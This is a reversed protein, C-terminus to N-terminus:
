EIEFENELFDKCKYAPHGIVIHPNNRMITNKDSAALGFGSAQIKIKLKNLQLRDINKQHFGFGLMCVKDAKSLLERASLFEENKETDEHIIKISKSITQLKTLDTLQDGFPIDTTQGNYPLEGLKGHLHIIPISRLKTYCEIESKGYLASMTKVFYYELTRDYNYTIFAVKNQAILDFETIMKNWVYKYWDTNEFLNKESELKLLNYAIAIKGIETYNSRFELFADVSNIESRILNKQFAEIFQRKQDNNLLYQFLQNRSLSDDDINRLQHRPTGSYPNPNAVYSEQQPMYKLSDSVKMLLERGLPLNFPQSAGAGLIFVTQKTIM